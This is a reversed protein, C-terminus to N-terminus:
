SEDGVQAEDEGSATFIRTTVKQNPNTVAFM